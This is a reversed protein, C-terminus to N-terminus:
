FDNPDDEKKESFEAEIPEPKSASAPKESPPAIVATETVTKRTFLGHLRNGEPTHLKGPQRTKEVREWAAGIANLASVLDKNSFGSLGRAEFETMAALMLNNSKTALVIIANKYGETDEIKAKANNAVAESFGVDLAIQRKSRGQGNLRKVAYAYQQPTSGTKPRKMLPIYCAM